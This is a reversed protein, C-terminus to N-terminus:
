KIKLFRKIWRPLHQPIYFYPYDFQSEFMWWTYIEYEDGSVRCGEKRNKEYLNDWALDVTNMREQTYKHSYPLIFRKLINHDVLFRYINSILKKM